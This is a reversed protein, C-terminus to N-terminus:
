VLGQTHIGYKSSLHPVFPHYTLQTEPWPENQGNERGPSNGMQQRALVARTAKNRTEPRTQATSKGPFEHIAKLAEAKPNCRWHSEKYAPLRQIHQKGPQRQGACSTEQFSHAALRHDDL